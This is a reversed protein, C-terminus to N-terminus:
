TIRGCSKQVAPFYRCLESPSQALSVYDLARANQRAITDILPRWFQGMCVLPRRPLFGKCMLEWALSLEVLTGTAGGLVVYGASGLEILKEVRSYLNDTSIQTDIYRNAQSKWLCCTVGITTGGAEKAGCASAEMTGGYGGNAITYGLQALMRGIARAFEYAEQGPQHDNAGFICVVPKSM